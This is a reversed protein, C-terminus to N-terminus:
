VARSAALARYGALPAVRLGPQKGFDDYRRLRAAEAAFPLRAFEDAEAATFVGGQVRLSLMSAESLSAAYDPEVACLYRKAAVHLRVPALVPEAFVGELFAAGSIEHRADRGEREAADGAGDLLQGVDHFLAALIMEDREGAERAFHAVQLAHERQTVGEGYAEDGLRDFLAFADDLSTM